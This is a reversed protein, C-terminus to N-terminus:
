GNGTVLGAAEASGHDQDIEGLSQDAARGRDLGQPSALV